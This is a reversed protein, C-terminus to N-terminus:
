ARSTMGTSQRSRMMASGAIRTPFGTTRRMGDGNVDEVHAGNRPAAQGTGIRVSSADITGVGLSTSGLRASTLTDRPRALRPARGAVEPLM